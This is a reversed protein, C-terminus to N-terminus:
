PARPTAHGGPERELLPPYVGLAAQLGMVTLCMLFGSWAVDSAFHGGQVVRAVGMLTGYVLGGGLIVPRCWVWRGGPVLVAGAVLIYGMAAHGSPFSEGAGPGGPQWWPQYPKLGAFQEIHRPRPRGWLPKLLGNVVLGPGLAVALILLLCHRRYPRWPTYPWSGLLMLLAGIAMGYAPFEGYAYLWAWPLADKLFWAPTRQADYCLASLTLDLPLFTVLLILLVFGGTLSVIQTRPATSSPHM